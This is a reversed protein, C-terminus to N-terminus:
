LLDRNILPSKRYYCLARFLIQKVSGSLYVEVPGEPDYVLNNGVKMALCLRNPEQKFPVLVGVMFITFYAKVGLANLLIWATILKLM